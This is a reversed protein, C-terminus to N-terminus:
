LLGSSTEKGLRVDLADQALGVSILGADALGYVEGHIEDSFPTLGGDNKYYGSDMAKGIGSNTSSVGFRLNKSNNSVTSVLQRFVAQTQNAPQNRLTVFQNVATEVDNGPVCARFFNLTAAQHAQVTHDYRQAASELIKAIYHDSLRHNRSMSVGAPTAGVGGNPGTFNNHGWQDYPNFTGGQAQIEEARLQAGPSALAGTQYPFIQRTAADPINPRAYGQGYNFNPNGAAITQQSLYQLQRQMQDQREQQLQAMQQPTLRPPGMMRQVAPHAPTSGAQGTSASEPVAVTRPEPARAMAKSANAEAEREFRDTPDSISLGSGNDRGSVPGQRQQIVHTLEHALTHKDGGGEGLVVNNGSTYARAGIESASARAASGDHVRVDSFDADLRAEMEARLPTELPRGAGLLVQHVASRQVAPGEVAEQHGCGAGHQHQEVAAQPQAYPHGALQLARMVAANGAARQLALLGAPGM